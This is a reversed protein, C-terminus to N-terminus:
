LNHFQFKEIDGHRSERFGYNIMTPWEYVRTLPTACVENSNSPKEHARLQWSGTYNIQEPPKESIPLDLDKEFGCEPCRYIYQM